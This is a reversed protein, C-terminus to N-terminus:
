AAPMLSALSPVAEFLANMTYALGNTTVDEILGGIKEFFDDGSLADVDFVTKGEEDIAARNAEESLTTSSTIIAEKPDNYYLETKNGNENMEFAAGYYQDAVTCDIRGTIDKDVHMTSKAEANLAPIEVYVVPDEDKGQSMTLIVISDDTGHENLKLVYVSSEEQTNMYMKLDPTPLTEPNMFEENAAKAEDLDPLTGFMNSMQYMSIFNEDEFLSNVFKKEADTIAKMDIDLSVMTDYVLDKVEFTGEEPESMVCANTLATTFEEVYKNAFSTDIEGMQDAFATTATEMTKELTGKIIYSPFLTSAAKYGNENLDVNFDFINKDDIDAKVEYGGDDGIFYTKLGNLADFYASLGEVTEKPTGQEELIGTVKETNVEISDTATMGDAFVAQSMILSTSLLLPIIKRTRM